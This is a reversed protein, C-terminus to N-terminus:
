RGTRVSPAAASLDVPEGFARAVIALWVGGALLGGVVDTLYHYGLYIRSVGILTALAVAAVIATLGAQRGRITWVILAIAGYFVLSNMAHGSPFSFDPPAQAWELQPRARQFLAKAAENLVVSGAMAVALFIGEHRRGDLALGVLLVVLLPGIVILSGLDTLTRMVTDLVPSALGHLFGTAATDLDPM